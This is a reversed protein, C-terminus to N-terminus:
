NKKGLTKTWTGNICVGPGRWWENIDKYWKPKELSAEDHLMACVRCLFFAHTHFDLFEGTDKWNFYSNYLDDNKDLINLYNALEKPSEFNDVHIYSRHPAVNKYEEPHAGM